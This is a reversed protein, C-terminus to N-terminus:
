IGPGRGIKSNSGGTTDTALAVVGSDDTTTMYYNQLSQSM